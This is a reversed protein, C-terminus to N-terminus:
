LRGQVRNMRDRVDREYRMAAQFERDNMEASMREFVREETILAAMALEM